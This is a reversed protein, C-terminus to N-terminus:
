SEHRVSILGNEGLRLKLRDLYCAVKNNKEIFLKAKEPLDDKWRLDLKIESRRSQEIYDKKLTGKHDVSGFNLQEKKYNLGLKPMIFSMTKETDVALDRYTVVSKEQGVSEMFKTIIKNSQLWKYLYIEYEHASFAKILYRANHRVLRRRQSRKESETGYTKEWRRVLARPDRILHVFRADISPHDAFKKAWAVKKSNDVLCYVNPHESQISRLVQQHWAVQALSGLGKFWPNVSFDNVVSHREDPRDQYKHYNHLEGISRCDPHAGLLQTLLHSGAYNTSLIFVVKCSKAM